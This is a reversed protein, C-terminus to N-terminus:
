QSGGVDGSFSGPGDWRCWAPVAGRGREGGETANEGLAIVTCRRLLAERSEADSWLDEIRYQSTMIFGMPAITRSGNKIEACFPYRDTWIKLHYTLSKAQDPGVDDLVVYPEGQYGDFWKNAMKAYFPRYITRALRSKGTGSAGWIWVGRTWPSETCAVQFDKWIARITPYRHLFERPHELELTTLDGAKALKIVAAANEAQTEAGGRKLSRLTGLVLFTGDKTCYDVNQEPSGRAIEWHATPFIKKMASLRSSTKLQLYCQCHPKGTSPAIESGAVAYSVSSVSKLQDLVQEITTDYLTFAWHCARASIPGSHGSPPTVSSPVETSTTSTSSHRRLRTDLLPLGASDPVADAVTTVSATTASPTTTASARLVPSRWPTRTSADAGASANVRWAHECVDEWTPSPPDTEHARVWSLRKQWPVEAYTTNMRPNGFTLFWRDNIDNDNLDIPYYQATVAKGISVRDVVAPKARGGPKTPPAPRM